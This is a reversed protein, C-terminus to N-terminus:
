AYKIEYEAKEELEVDVLLKKIIADPNYARARALANKKFLGQHKKDGFFTEIATIMDARSKVLYGSKENEIIDKPGKTNYATVPLGCSFAELVVCGFTDFKSPLVLMDAASYIDPLKEHDVWGLFLADPVAARLDEEKPGKGAIALKVDPYKEKISRYILPLEM